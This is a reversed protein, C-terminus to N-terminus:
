LWIYLFRYNNKYRIFKKLKILMSHDWDQDLAFLELFILYKLYNNNYNYQGIMTLLIKDFSHLKNDIAFSMSHLNPFIPILINKVCDISISETLALQLKKIRKMNQRIKENIQCSILHNLPLTLSTLNTMKTLLQVVFGDTICTGYLEFHKLYVFAISQNLLLRSQHEIPTINEYLGLYFSHVLPCRITHQQQHLITQNLVLDFHRIRSYADHIHAISSKKIYNNLHSKMFPITCIIHKYSTIEYIFRINNTLFFNLDQFKKTILILDRQSDINLSIHLDFIKLRNLKNTFLNNWRETNIHENDYSSNLGTTYTYIFSTLNPCLILLNEIYKFSISFVNLKLYTLFKLSKQFNQKSNIKISSNESIHCTLHQIYIMSHLLIFLSNIDSIKLNLEEIFYIKESINSSLCDIQCNSIRCIRLSEPIVEIPIVLYDTTKIILTKLFPFYPILKTLQEITPETLILTKMREQRCYKSQELYYHIGDITQKNSLKISYIQQSFKPLIYHCTLLFKKQQIYSLDLYLRIGRIISNFRQNLNYFSFILDCSSIYDFIELLIEDPMSEFNMHHM